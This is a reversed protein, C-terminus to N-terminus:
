EKNEWLANATNKKWAVEEIQGDEHMKGIILRVQILETKFYRTAEAKAGQLTEANCPIWKGSFSHYKATMVFM